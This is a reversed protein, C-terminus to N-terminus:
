LQSQDIWPWCLGFLSDLCSQGNVRIHVHFSGRSRRADSPLCLDLASRGGLHLPCVRLSRERSLVMKGEPKQAKAPSKSPPSKIASHPTSSRSNGENEGSSGATSEDEEGAAVSFDAKEKSLQYLEQGVLFLANGKAVTFSGISSHATIYPRSKNRGQLTQEYAKEEQM